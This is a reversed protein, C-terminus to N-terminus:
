KMTIKNVVNRYRAYPSALAMAREMQAQSQVSGSLTINMDDVSVQIDAGSLAPDGNLVNRLDSEIQSNNAAKDQTNGGGPSATPSPQANPAPPTQQPQQCFAVPAGLLAIVLACGLIRTM